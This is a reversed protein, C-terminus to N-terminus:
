FGAAPLMSLALLRSTDVWTGAPPISNLGTQVGFRVAFFYDCTLSPTIEIRIPETWRAAFATRAGTPLATTPLLADLTWLGLGRLRRKRNGQWIRGEVPDVEVSIFGYDPSTPAAHKTGSRMATAISDAGLTEFDTYAGFLLTSCWLRGSPDDHLPQILARIDVAGLGRPLRVMGSYINGSGYSGSDTLISGLVPDSDSTTGETSTTTGDYRTGYFQRFLPYRLCAGTNVRNGGDDTYEGEHTHPDDLNRRLPDSTDPSTLDPSQLGPVGGLIEYTVQNIARSAGSALITSLEQGSRVSATPLDSAPTGEQLQPVEGQGPLSWPYVLASLLRYSTPVGGPNSTQWVALEVERDRASAGLDLTAVERPFPTGGGGDSLTLTASDIGAGAGLGHAGLDRLEVLVSMTETGLSGTLHAVIDCRVESVGAPVFLMEAVLLKESGVASFDVGAAALPFPVGHEAATATGEPFHPGFSCSLLHRALTEGGGQAHDHKLSSTPLLRTTGFTKKRAYAINNVLLAHIDEPALPGYLAASTDLAVPTVSRAGRRPLDLRLGYISQPDTNVAYEVRLYAVRYSGTLAIGSIDIPSGEVWLLGDDAYPPTVGLIGGEAAVSNLDTPAYFRLRVRIGDSGSDRSLGVRPIVETAGIPLVFGVTGFRTLSTAAADEQPLGWTDVGRWAMVTDFAEDHAHGAAPDELLGSSESGTLSYEWGRACELLLEVLEADYPESELPPLLGRAVYERRTWRTGPFGPAVLAGLRNWAM